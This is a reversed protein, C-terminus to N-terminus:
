APCSTVTLAEAIPLRQSRRSCWSNRTSRLTDACAPKTDSRGFGDTGLTRYPGPIWPRIQEPVLATFDSVAVFPGAIDALTQRLFPRRPSEAPHLLNWREVAVAERRLESYSTVSWLDSPVSFQEALMRQARQAELMLPGSALLQPRREVAPEAEVERHGVVHMGRLIGEEAGEPMAPMPYNQNYLTLYYFTSTGEQYMQRLGDQVIVAVEYAFAPDYARLSPVTTAVLQSHGDQHQLGEGNLTTRGATCGLLFGKAQADAAAWIMDGARQFGFMSYFLYFPIMPLELNAYSTGAAIFSALSGAETIGEELIQGDRAERYYILQSIDVPEYKQGEPAYIGCQRFLPELGFTRAEDPIIPVIREGLTDDKLLISLLRDFSMTTSM